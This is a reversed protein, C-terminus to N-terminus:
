QARDRSADVFTFVMERGVVRRTQLNRGRPFPRTLGDVLASMKASYEFQIIGTGTQARLIDVEGVGEITRLRAAVSEVERWDLPNELRLEVEAAGAPPRAAALVTADERM